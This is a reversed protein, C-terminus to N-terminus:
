LSNSTFLDPMAAKPIIAGPHQVVVSALQHGYEVADLPKIGQIRAALYAANFSDGAATTDKVQKLNKAPTWEVKGQDAVWCGEKGKKVIIEKMQTTEILRQLMSEPSPAGFLDRHDDFTPLYIDCLAHAKQITEKAEEINSWLAPRYNSDFVIIAGNKRATQIFNFCQEQSHPDLIALSIGSFYLYDLTQSFTYLKEKSIKEFFQRAASDSRYFYFSREGKEDTDILYLGSLKDPIVEILDTQIGEKEWFARMKKSYPDQGIASAYFVELNTKKQYRALYVATNLTDGAFGMKLSNEDLHSLEVMCEGLSLFKKSTLLHM